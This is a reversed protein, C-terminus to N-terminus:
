TEIAARVSPANSRIFNLIAEEGAATNLGESIVQGGDLANVIKVRAGPASQGQGGGNFVHRPDDQTLVEENEKLIAPVEGPRLGPVGGGHYRVANMFVSADVQRAAGRQGAIGGSHLVIAGSAGFGFTGLIMQAANLALQRLIMQAIQRLFDAAFQLFAERLSEAVSKGEDLAEAFRMAGNFLSGSLAQEVQEYSLRIEGASQVGQLQLERLRAILAQIVPDSSGMAIAFDLANQIAEEILRNVTGLEAQIEALADAGVGAIQSAELQQL